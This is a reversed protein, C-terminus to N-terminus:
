PNICFAAVMRGTLLWFHTRSTGSLLKILKELVPSFCLWGCGNWAGKVQHPTSLHLSAPLPKVFLFVNEHFVPTMPSLLVLNCSWVRSDYLVRM